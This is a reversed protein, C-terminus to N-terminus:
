AKGIRQLIALPHLVQRLRQSVRGVHQIFLASREGAFPIGGGHLMTNGVFTIGTGAPGTLTKTFADIVQRKEPELWFYYNIGARFEPPLHMVGDWTMVGLDNYTFEHFAKLTPSMKVRQSGDVYRFAGNSASVDSLYVITTVGKKQDLHLFNENTERFQPDTDLGAAVDNKPSVTTSHRISLLSDTLDRGYLHHFQKRAVGIVSGAIAQLDIEIDRHQSPSNEFTFRGERDRSPLTFLVPDFPALYLDNYIIRNIIRRRQDATLFAIVPGILRVFELYHRSQLAADADRIRAISELPEGRRLRDSLQFSTSIDYPDPFYDAFPRSPTPHM